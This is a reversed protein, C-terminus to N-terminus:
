VIFNDRESEVADDIKKAIRNLIKVAWAYRAATEPCTDYARFVEECMEDDVANLIDM